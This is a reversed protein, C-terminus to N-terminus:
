GRGGYPYPGIPLVQRGITVNITLAAALYWALAADVLGVYGGIERLTNSLSGPASTNSIGLLLFVVVLVLFIAFAARAVFWAAVAMFATFGAWLLLYAGFADAFGEPGAAEVVAGGVFQLILGVSIWFAGFAIAWTAGFLNNGRFDWLGGIILAISGISLTVAVMFGTANLTVLEANILSLMGLAFGFGTLAIAQGSATIPFHVGAGGEQDAMAEEKSRHRVRSTASSM